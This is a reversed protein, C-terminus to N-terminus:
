GPFPNEVRLVGPRLLHDRGVAHVAQAALPDGVTRVTGTECDGARGNLDEGDALRGDTVQIPRLARVQTAVPSEQDMARRVTAPQHIHRGGPRDAYEPM